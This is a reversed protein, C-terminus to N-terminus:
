AAHQPERILVVAVGSAVILMAGVFFHSGVAEGWILWGIAAAWILGSYDLPAIISAPARRFAQTILGLGLTSAFALAALVSAHALDVPTWQWPMALGAFLIQGLAIYLMTTLMPEDHKISRATVMLIAYGVAAALPYMFAWHFGSGGPQVVAIVGAFGAIVCLWQRWRVREHFFVVSLITVFLPASYAVATVAALPVEALGAYFACATVVNLFGRMLHINGNRTALGSSGHLAFIAVVLVPAALLGRMFLLQAPAYFDGLWKALADSISLCLAGALVM